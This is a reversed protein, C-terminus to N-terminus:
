NKTVSKKLFRHLLLYAFATSIIAILTAGIIDLPHHINAIIRATGVLVAIIFLMIGLKKNYVFVTSAITMTLLTHDSPFGNDPAHAILPKIHEVVFPRPDKIFLAAVKAITLSLPLTFLALFLLSKKINKDTKLFYLIAILISVIFLYKASLIILLNVM